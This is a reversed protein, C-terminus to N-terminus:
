GEARAKVAALQEEQARKRDAAVAQAHPREGILKAHAKWDVGGEALLDVGLVLKSALAVLPLLDPLPLPVTHFLANMPPAYLVAAQLLVSLTLGGALWPNRLLRPGLASATSSQCNLVNFWQCMALITFTETGTVHLPV